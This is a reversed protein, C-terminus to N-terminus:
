DRDLIDDIADLVDRTSPHDKTSKGRYAWALEPEHDRVDVVVADPLRGFLSAWDRVAELRIRQGYAEATAGDPDALLPYPLSARLWEATAERSEPLLAVPVADRARFAAYRDGVRKVSTRCDGCDDDHVLYLALFDNGNALASLSCPDPGPGVNDLEFSPAGQSDSM